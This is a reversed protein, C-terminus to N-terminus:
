HLLAMWWFSCALSSSASLCSSVLLFKPKLHGTLPQAIFQLHGLPSLCCTSLFCGFAHSIHPLCHASSLPRRFCWPAHRLLSSSFCFSFSFSFSVGEEAEGAFGGVVATALHRTQPNTAFSVLPSLVWMRKLCGVAQEVAKGFGEADGVTEEVTGEKACAEMVGSPHTHGSQPCANM